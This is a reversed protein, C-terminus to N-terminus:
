QMAVGITLNYELEVHQVDERLFLHWHTSQRKVKVDCVSDSVLSLQLSHILLYASNM